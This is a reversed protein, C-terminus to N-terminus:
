GRVTERDFQGTSTLNFTAKHWFMPLDTKTLCRVTVQASEQGSAKKGAGKAHPQHIQKEQEICRGRVLEICRGRVLPWRKRSVFVYSLM